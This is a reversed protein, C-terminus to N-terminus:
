SELGFLLLYWLFISECGFVHSGYFYHNECRNESRMEKTHEMIWVTVIMDMDMMSCTQSPTEVAGEIFFLPFGNNLTKVIEETWRKWVCLQPSLIFLSHFYMQLRRISPYVKWHINTVFTYLYIVHWVHVNMRVSLLCQWADTHSIFHFSFSIHFPDLFPSRLDHLLNNKTLLLHEFKFNPIFVSYIGFIHTM